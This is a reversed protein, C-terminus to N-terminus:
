KGYKEKIYEVEEVKVTDGLLKTQQDEHIRNVVCIKNVITPEGYRNYLRKYYDVDMLWNLKEDFEMVDKNEFALVSPSSITNEGLHINDNYEPFFPRYYKTDFHECGTVLWGGKFNKAIEVLAKDNFLYDDQFLVKIINGTAKSVAFNTNASISGRDNENKYYKVFDYQKCLNEMQNQAFYTSHDSVVVDFDKYVQQSIIELSEKLYNLGKGKMEYCPIVISINKAM